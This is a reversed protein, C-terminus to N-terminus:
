HHQAFSLVYALVFLMILIVGGVLYGRWGIHSDEVRWSSRRTKRIRSPAFRQM